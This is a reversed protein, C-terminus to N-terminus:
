PKLATTLPSDVRQAQTAADAATAQVLAQDDGSCQVNPAPTADDLYWNSAAAELQQEFSSELRDASFLSGQPGTWLHWQAVDSRVSDPAGDVTM